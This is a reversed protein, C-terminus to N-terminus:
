VTQRRYGHYNELINRIEKRVSSDITRDKEIKPLVQLIELISLGLSWIDSGFIFKDQERFWWEPISPKMELSQKRALMIEQAVVNFNKIYKYKEPSLYYDTGANIM